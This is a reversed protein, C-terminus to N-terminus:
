LNTVNPLNCLGEPGEKTDKNIFNIIIIGINYLIELNEGLKCNWSEM